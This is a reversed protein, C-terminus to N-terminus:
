SRRRRIRWAFAAMGVLTLALASPEPVAAGAVPGNHDMAGRLALVDLLNVAGDGDLDGDDMVDAAPVMNRAGYHAALRAFDGRGVVGDMDMDALVTQPRVRRLSTVTGEIRFFASPAACMTCEGYITLTGGGLKTLDPPELPLSVDNFVDGHRPATSAFWDIDLRDMFAAPESYRAVNRRSNFGYDDSGVFGFDNHVFIDFDPRLRDSGYVNRGVRLWVGAPPREHHYIGVDNFGTPRESNPTDSDFVYYGTIRSGRGVSDDVASRGDFVSEVRGELAFVVPDAYLRECAAFVAVLSLGALITRM